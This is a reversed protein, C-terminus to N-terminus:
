GIIKRGKELLGIEEDLRLRQTKTRIEEGAIDELVDHGLGAVLTASFLTLPTKKGTVLMCDAVQMRVSDVFRKRAVRYYACLIDHIELTIHRTNSLPHSQAIDDLRVVTGHKCDSISKPVLDARLRENRRKQLNENFYHNCTAPTGDLEIDLLFETHGIARRYMRTLDDLLLSKIGESVRHSPAIRKLAEVIFGHVLTIIDSVYGLALERWSAAQEKLTVGLITADFTGLEFGRSGRYLGDIWEIIDGDSPGPGSFNTHILEVIDPHDQITRTDLGPASSTGPRPLGSPSSGSDWQFQFAHGHTAIAKAFLEGRNIAQTALRFAPNNAFIDARGYGAHLADSVLGQFRIAFEVLYQFQEGQTQRKPGLDRLQKEAKKLRESIERRVKSFERRIHDELIAQLRIRLTQVGVKGKDLGNWPAVKTFFEEEITHRCRSANLDSQGPNRLLHWGLLLRHKRGELLDVAAGESGQDILEPKTLVGLTRIGETDLDEARELIEQTAIDVNCPIVILMVSRPNSMYGHVIRDVLAIDEKTTIGQTTRKFIGPVDIISFHEQTPGSVELRLVDESFTRRFHEAESGIEMATTVQEMIDRFSAADLSQLPTISWNRLREQRDQPSMKNPIISVTIKAKGSRRFTIHTAFRTCLGSDRPFPLGTLGELVSSKGSSQDGVVVLQPLDVYEGANCAFLKDIKELLASSLELDVKDSGWRILAM